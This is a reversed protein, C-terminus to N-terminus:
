EVVRNQKGEIDKDGTFVVGPVPKSRSALGLLRSIHHYCTRRIYSSEGDLRLSILAQELSQM